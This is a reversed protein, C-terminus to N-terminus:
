AALPHLMFFSAVCDPPMRSGAPLAGVSECLADIMWASVTLAQMYDTVQAACTCVLSDTALKGLVTWVRPSGRCNSPCGAGCAGGSRVYRCCQPAMAASTSWWSACSTATSLTVRRLTAALRYSHGPLCCPSVTHVLRCCRAVSLSRCVCVSDAGRVSTHAYPPETGSQPAGECAVHLM